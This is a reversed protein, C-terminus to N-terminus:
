YFISIRNKIYQDPRIKALAIGLSAHQTKLTIKYPFSDTFTVGKKNRFARHFQNADCFILLNPPPFHILSCDLFPFM